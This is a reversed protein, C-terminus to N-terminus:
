GFWEIVFCYLKFFPLQYEYTPPDSHVSTAQFIRTRSSFDDAGEGFREGSGSLSIFSHSLYLTLVEMIWCLKFCVDVSIKASCVSSSGCISCVDIKVKVVNSSCFVALLIIIDLGFKPGKQDFTLEARQNHLPRWRSPSRSSAAHQLTGLTQGRSRIGNLALQRHRGDQDFALGRRTTGASHKADQDFSIRRVHM